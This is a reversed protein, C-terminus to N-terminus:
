DEQLSYTGYKIEKMLKSVLNPDVDGVNMTTVHAAAVSVSYIAAEELSAKKILSHILAALTSDGSGVTNEVIVRPAKCVILRNRAFLLLGKAGLTVCIIMIGMDRLELLDPLLVNKFSASEFFEDFGEDLATFDYKHKTLNEFESLNPKIIFPAHKVGTELADGSTDLCVPVDAENAIDTLVAYMEDTLGIPLSGSLVVMDARAVLRRYLKIFNIESEADVLHGGELIETVKGEDDIYNMNTRTETVLRVFEYPMNRQKLEEVIVKGTKGGIFGTVLADDGQIKLDFAVNIAKGGAHVSELRARNVEGPKIKNIRLMKDLAPNLSVCLIM